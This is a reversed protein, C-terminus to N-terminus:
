NNLYNIFKNEFKYKLSKYSINHYINYISMKVDKELELNLKDKINNINNDIHKKIIINFINLDSSLNLIQDVILSNVSNYRILENYNKNLKINKENGTLINEFGPEHLLPNNDLLSQITVLVNSIDMACTWSPGSWTGLISLCVKGNVYLNPHIRVNNQSLYKFIPPSYPYNNPFTIDFFLLADEFLTDKPGIILAKAKLINSEDFIIYIGQNELSNERLRKMDINMIRKLTAKM